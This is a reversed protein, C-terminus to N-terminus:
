VLQGPPHHNQVFEHAASALVTLLRTIEDLHRLLLEEDFMLKGAAGPLAWTEERWEARTGDAHTV